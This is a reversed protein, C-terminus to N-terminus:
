PAPYRVQVSWLSGSALSQASVEVTQGDVVRAGVMDAGNVQMQASLQSPDYSRPLKIVLHESGVAGGGGGYFSYRLVQMGDSTDRVLGALTYRIMFTRTQEATVPFHWYIVYTRINDSGVTRQVDYTHDAQSSSAIYPTGVESATFDSIDELSGVSV